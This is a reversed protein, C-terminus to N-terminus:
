AIYVDEVIRHINMTPHAHKAGKENELFNLRQRPRSGGNLAVLFVCYIVLDTHLSFFFFLRVGTRSAMFAILYKLNIPFFLQSM